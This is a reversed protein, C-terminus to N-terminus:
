EFKSLRIYPVVEKKYRHREEIERRTRLVTGPELPIEEKEYLSLGDPGGDQATCSETGAGAISGLEMCSKSQSMGGLSPPLQRRM